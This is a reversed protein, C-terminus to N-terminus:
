VDTFINGGAPIYTQKSKKLYKRNKATEILKGLFPTLHVPRDKYLHRSSYAKSEPISKFCPM